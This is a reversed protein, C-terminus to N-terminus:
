IIVSITLFRRVSLVCLDCCFAFSSKWDVALSAVFLRKLFDEFSLRKKHHNVRLITAIVHALTDHRTTEPRITGQRTIVPRIIGRSMTVLLITGHSTTLVRTLHVRRQIMAVAKQTM